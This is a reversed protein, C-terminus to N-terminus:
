RDAKALKDVVALRLLPRLGAVPTRELIEDFFGLIILREAVEPPVGRSELYYRQDEDVPGVASAHSCRVDNEEIELNPVSDAHAGESLVLNRNTQFANTGAAGKRVRILGSYVSRSTGGVAGKFLLDSTTKPADHDQLTRFDHVQSGDGFYVALLHANGGTGTLKSDTRIRAYDGGLAVAASLLTADRAVRSASYGLQWVRPGLDQINLYRLNASQEARLEVVPAVLAAVDSSGSWDLVTVEAAEGAEVIVRPLVAVGDRDIWQLVVIPEAVVVGAPVRVVLPEAAFAGNLDFFADRDSSPLDLLEEGDALDGLPGFTVGRSAVDPDLTARAVRGNRLVLVGATPGIATLVSELQSPLAADPEVHSDRVPAYRDLDLDNIRSFRWVDDAETPLEAATFREFAAARRQRLWEPGPLSAVADATFSTLPITRTDRVPPRTPGWM